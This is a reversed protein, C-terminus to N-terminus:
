GAAATTRSATGSRRSTARRHCGRLVRRVRRRPTAAGPQRISSGYRDLACCRDCTRETRQRPLACPMSITNATPSALDWEIPGSCVTEFDILFVDTGSVIFNGTHPEGHISRVTASIDDVRPRLQRFRSRLLERDSDDLRLMANDDFLRRAALDLGGRFDPLEVEVDSLAAHVSALCAALAAPDAAEPDSTSDIRSWLTAVMSTTPETYPSGVPVAVPAGFGALQRAVAHERLLAPASHSWRGIKAIIATPQLWVVVNNTEQIVVVQDAEVGNAAAALRAVDLPNM